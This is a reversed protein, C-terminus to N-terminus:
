KEDGERRQDRAPFLKLAGVDVFETQPKPSRDRWYKAAHAHDHACPGAAGCNMCQAVVADIYNRTEIVAGQCFPCPSDTITLM